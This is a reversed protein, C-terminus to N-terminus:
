ELDAKHQLAFKLVGNTSQLNLKKAINARHNEITRKSVFLEDAIEQNTKLDAIRNLIRIETPTLEKLTSSLQESSTSRKQLLIGALTPSIYHRGESVAAVAKVIESVASDKLIYGKVGADMSELFIKRDDLMTLLMINTSLNMASARQAAALGTMKPMNIDLIAIDPKLASMKHLADEGDGAEAIVVFSQELELMQRVGARFLPHDDAILITIKEAM